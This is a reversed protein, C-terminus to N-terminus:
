HVTGVTQHGSFNLRAAVARTLDWEASGYPGRDIVPVTISRGRFLISVKTGCPLTRHAVGVTDYGLTRGCATRNGYLGPGYWSALDAEYVVLKRTRAARTNLRDGRFVVKVRSRSSQSVSFRAAYRGSKVRPRAVTKWGGDARRRITVRRGASHPRLRGSVRVARGAMVRGPRVRVTLKPEMRVRVGDSTTSTPIAAIPLAGTSETHRVRYRASKRFGKLRFRFKLEADVAGTRIETWGASTRRQLAVENGTTGDVVRGRIVVPKGFAVKRPASTIVPRPIAEQAQAGALALAFIGAGVAGAGLLRRARAPVTPLRSM